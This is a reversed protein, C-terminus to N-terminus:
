PLSQLQPDILEDPIRNQTIYAEIEEPHDYYYSLADHIQALSLYPLAQRITEPTEGLRTMEIIARVPTRTGQIVPEGGLLTDKRVIHPHETLLPASM